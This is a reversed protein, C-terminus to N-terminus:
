PFAAACRIPETSVLCLTAYLSHTYWTPTPIGHPHPYLMNWQCTSSTFGILHAAFNSSCTFFRKSNVHIATLTEDFHYGANSELRQGGASTDRLNTPPFPLPQCSAQDKRPCLYRCWWWHHDGGGDGDDDDDDDDPLLPLVGSPWLWGFLEM